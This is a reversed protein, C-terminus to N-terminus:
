YFVLNQYFLLHIFKYTIIILLIKKNLMSFERDRFGWEIFLFLLMHDFFYRLAFIKFNFIIIGILVLRIIIFLLLSIKIGDDLMRIIRQRFYITSIM